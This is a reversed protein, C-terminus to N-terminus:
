IGLMGIINYQISPHDNSGLASRGKQPRMTSGEGSRMRMGRPGEPGQKWIGKGQM